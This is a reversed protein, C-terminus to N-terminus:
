SSHPKMKLKMDVLCDSKELLNRIERARDIANQRTSLLEISIVYLNKDENVTDLFFNQNLNNLEKEANVARIKAAQESFKVIRNEITLRLEKESLSVLHDIDQFLLKEDSGVAEIIEYKRLVQQSEQDITNKLNQVLGALVNRVTSMPKGKIALEYQYRQLYKSNDLRSYIGPRCNIHGQIQQISATILEDRIQQKRFKIQRELRLRAQRAQESIQDLATFLLQIEQTQQIAKIKADQIAEEAKKLLKADQTAVAFDEDTMLKMNISKIKQLLSDKWLPFNSNQIKGSIQIELNRM